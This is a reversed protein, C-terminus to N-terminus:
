YNIKKRRNKMYFEAMRDHENLTRRKGTRRDRFKSLITQEKRIFEHNTNIYIKTTYFM